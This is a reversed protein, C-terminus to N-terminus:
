VVIKCLLKIEISQLEPYSSRVLNLFIFLFYSMAAMLPNTPIFFYILAYITVIHFM